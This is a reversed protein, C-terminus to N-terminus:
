RKFRPTWSEEMEEEEEIEEADPLDNVTLVTLTKGYDGLGITEEILMADIDGGFWDQIAGEAEMREGDLVNRPDANLEKTASNPPLLSGKRIWDLGDAEKLTDSMFCYEVQKGSSVVIAAADPSRQAFRIATATLSTQCEGALHEIAAIGDGAKRLEADFLTSPMLLAAAFHDAELEYRDKSRFGAHSAHAGDQLVCEPHGPLRYHGIEHGVSFRQFGDSDISTSYLIGFLNRQRLLMGSVGSRSDAPLAQVEIGLEEAISFPCVPLAAIGLERVLTEAEGGAIRQWLWKSM